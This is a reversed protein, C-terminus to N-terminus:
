MFIYNMRLHFMAPVELAWQLRDYPQTARRRRRKIARIRQTTKQDGYILFLRDKFTANDLRYQQIFINELVMLNGANSSENYPIPGLSLHNSRTPKLIDLIPMAPM